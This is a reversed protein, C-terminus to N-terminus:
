KAPARPPVSSSGASCCMIATDVRARTSINLVQGTGSVVATNNIILKSGLFDAIDVTVPFKGGGAYTNGGNVNFGGNANSSITGPSTHGDGWDITATFNGAVGNPDFDSVTAVLGNFTSGATAAISPQANVATTPEPM